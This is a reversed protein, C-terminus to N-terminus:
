FLIMDLLLKRSHRQLKCTNLSRKALKKGGRCGLLMVNIRDTPGFAMKRKCDVRDNLWLGSSATTNSFVVWTGVSRFLILKSTATLCSTWLCQSINRQNELPNQLCIHSNHPAFRSIQRSIQMM